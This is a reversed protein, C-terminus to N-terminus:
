DVGYMRELLDSYMACDYWDDGDYEETGEIINNAVQFINETDKM